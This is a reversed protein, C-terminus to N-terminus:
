VIKVPGAKVDDEEHVRHTQALPIPDDSAYDVTRDVTIQVKTGTLDVTEPPPRHSFRVNSLITPLRHGSSGSSPNQARLLKRANMSALFSNAYLKSITFHLGLYILAHPKVLWFILSLTTTVSTVLGNEITYLTMSNLIQDLRGSGGRRSRRLLACLSTTIMIDLATSLVLGLTFLWRYHMYFESFSGLRILEASTAVASALRFTALIVMPATIIYNGKSLRFLRYSFFLHVLITTIATFAITLGASWFVHDTIDESGFGDVCYQWDAAWVLCTHVIDLICISGVWLKLVLHDKEFLRFYLVTQM